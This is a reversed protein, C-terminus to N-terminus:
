IWNKRLQIADRSMFRGSRTDLWLQLALYPEGGIEADVQGSMVVVYHSLTVWKLSLQALARSIEYWSFLQPGNPKDFATLSDM